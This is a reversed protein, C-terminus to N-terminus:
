RNPEHAYGKRLSYLQLKLHPGFLPQSDALIPDASDICGSLVARLASRPMARVFLRRM